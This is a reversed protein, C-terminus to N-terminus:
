RLVLLRDPPRTMIGDGNQAIPRNRRNMEFRQQRSVVDEILAAIELGPGRALPVLKHPNAIQRDAQREAFIETSVLSQHRRAQHERPPYPHPSPDRQPIASRSWRCRIWKDRARGPGAHNRASTSM